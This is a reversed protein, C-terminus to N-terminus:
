QILQLSLTLDSPSYHLKVDVKWYRKLANGRLVPAAKDKLQEHSASTHVIQELARLIGNTRM